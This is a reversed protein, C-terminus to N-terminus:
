CDTSIELGDYALDVNEPLLKQLETHFGAQHCLHTFFARRPKIREVQALADTITQHAIHEEYRLANIVLIDIGKLKEYESDPITKLDTLYAFDDIRYGFIPLKGHMLRIPLIKQGEIDFTELGIKKMILSPSGPYKREAFAYDIRRMIAEAVYNEAYIDLPNHRCFIRLDDLGGVHDYHEHTLLVADLREFPEIEFTSLMQRRFDPSCDILIKRGDDLTVLVSARLRKDRPDSSSCVACRCGIEPIGTSTGTGLFRIKM